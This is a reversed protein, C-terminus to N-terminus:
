QLNLVAGSVILNFLLAVIALFLILLSLSRRMNYLKASTFISVLAILVAVAVFSYLQWM